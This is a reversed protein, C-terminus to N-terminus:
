STVRLVKHAMRRIRSITGNQESRMEIKFRVNGTGAAVYEDFFSIPLYNDSDQAEYTLSMVETETIGDTELFFARIFTSRNTSQIRFEFKAEFDYEKGAVVPINGSDYVEQFTNVTVNTEFPDRGAFRQDYISAGLGAIAATNTAINSTNTAINGTNTTIAAENSSINGTNTAINATNAAVQADNSSMADYIDITDDGNVAFDGAVGDIVAIRSQQNNALSFQLQENTYNGPTIVKLALSGLATGIPVTVDLVYGNIGMDAIAVEADDIEFRLDDRMNQIPVNLQFTGAGRPITWSVDTAIYSIPMETLSRNPTQGM